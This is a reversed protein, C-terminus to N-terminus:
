EVAFLAPQTVGTENLADADEGFLVERVRPDCEDLVADLADAFVPFGDALERGMGLRQSGQGSFLFGLRHQGAEGLVVGPGGRGEALAALRDLTTARDDALLVARHEFRSRTTALSFGIDAPDFAAADAAADAVASRLRDAQARLADPTRASLMWPTVAPVSRAAPVPAPATAETTSPPEPAPPEELIVHANTGSVGFSSVGARRPEGTGPWPRADTLLEVTGASWDVHSSPEDVHLTRPLVGHRMAMVMKI